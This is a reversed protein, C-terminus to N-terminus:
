IAVARPKAGLYIALLKTTFSVAVLVSLNGLQGVAAIIAVDLVLYIAWALLGIKLGNNGYFRRLLVGAIFMIPMGAIISLYPGFRNAAEQYYIDAHGPDILNGYAVMFLFFVFVNTVGAAIATPLAMWLKGRRVETESM